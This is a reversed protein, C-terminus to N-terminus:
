LNLGDIGFGKQIELGIEDFLYGKKLSIMESWRVLARKEMIVSM